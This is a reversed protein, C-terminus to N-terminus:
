QKNALTNFKPPEALKEIHQLSFLSPQKGVERFFDALVQRERPLAKWRKIAQRLSMDQNGYRVIEEPDFDFNIM